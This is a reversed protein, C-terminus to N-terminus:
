NDRINLFSIDNKIFRYGWYIMLPLTLIVILGIEEGLFIILIIFCLYYWSNNLAKRDRESMDLEEM